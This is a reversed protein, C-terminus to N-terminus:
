RPPHLTCRYGMNMTGERPCKRTRFASSIADPYAMSSQIQGGRSRHTKHNLQPLRMVYECICICIRSFPTSDAYVSIAISHRKHSPISYLHSPAIPTILRNAPGLPIAVAPTPFPVSLNSKCQKLVPRPLSPAALTTLSLRRRSLLTYSVTGPGACCESESRESYLEGTRTRDGM